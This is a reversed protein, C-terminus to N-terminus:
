ENTSDQEQQRQQQQQHHHNHHQMPGPQGPLHQSMDIHRCPEHRPVVQLLLYSVQLLV